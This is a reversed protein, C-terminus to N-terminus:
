WARGLHCWTEYMMFYSPDHTCPPGYFGEVDPWQELLHYFADKWARMIRRGEEGRVAFFWNEIHLAGPLEFAYLHASPDKEFMWDLGGNLILTADLWIGGYESLVHCRAVDSRASPALRAYTSPAAEAVDGDGLVTIEHNPLHRRWTSLAEEVDDPLPRSDWFTWVRPAIM